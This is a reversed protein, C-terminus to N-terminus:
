KKMPHQIYESLRFVKGDKLKIDNYLSVTDSKGDKTTSVQSYWLSVWEESKDKNIVSEMDQMEIKFGSMKSFESQIQNLFEPKTGKFKYGDKNRFTTNGLVTMCDVQSFKKDLDIFGNNVLIPYDFDTLNFGVLTNHENLLTLIQKTDTSVNLCYVKDYLFSYLGIWKIKAHKVYDDFNTKINIEKGQSYFASTEIDIVLCRSKIENLNKLISIDLM